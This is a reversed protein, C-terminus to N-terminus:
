YDHGFSAIPNLCLSAVKGPLNLGQFADITRGLQSPLTHGFHGPQLLLGDLDRPFCLHSWLGVMYGDPLNPM